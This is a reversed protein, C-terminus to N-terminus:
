EEIEPVAPPNLDIVTPKLVILFDKMIEVNTTRSFLFPLITGLIPVKSTQKSTETKKFGGLLFEEGDKVIVTNQIIQGSESPSGAIIEGLSTLKATVILKLYGSEGLSPIVSLSLGATMEQTEYINAYSSYRTVYTIRSGDLITGMKNNTTVIRPVSIIKGIDSDQIIKLLEGVSIYSQTQIQYRYRSVDTESPIHTQKIVDRDVYTLPSLYTKDLLSQWDMGLQSMKENNIEVIKAEIIIQRPPVDLFEILQLANSISLSDGILLVHNISNNFIFRVRSDNITLVNKENLCNQASLEEKLEVPSIYKLPVIKPVILGTVVDGSIIMPKLMILICILLISRNAKIIPLM